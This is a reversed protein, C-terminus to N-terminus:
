KARCSEEPHHYRQATHCWCRADSCIHWAHDHDTCTCPNGAPCTGLCDGPRGQRVTRRVTPRPAPAHAAITRPSM